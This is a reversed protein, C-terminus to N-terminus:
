VGAAHSKQSQGLYADFCACISRVFPRGYETVRFGDETKEVIGDEDSAILDEADRIIPAAADEGFAEKLEAKSFALDCMLREITFGRIRDDESLKLGRVIAFGDTEIRREYDALAVANQAFGQPYSSISSAGFGILADARDATYGQFNRRVGPASLTDDPKAFHDLGIRVYGAEILRRAVRSAQGFREITDPLSADDILRQHKFRQPLHAYGFMAIRDPALTLVQEITREISQRTQHPLGYVLDINVSGIGRARLLDIAQKTLEYPQERNIAEQVKPEFDQVGISARNVGAEAFADAHAADFGRPDIEVAFEYEPALHFRSTMARALRLIDKPELVNPSGGGWHIHVVGHDRRLREAVHDIEALLYRMYNSVPEYRQVAKTNCGCYWCLQSCFPVHAYLSLKSNAPLLGIWADVDANSIGPNFYNAPPYSTYRPVPAAYKCITEPTM